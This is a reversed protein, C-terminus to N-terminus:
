PRTLIIIFIFLYIGVQRWQVYGLVGRRCPGVCSTGTYNTLLSLTDSLAALHSQWKILNKISNFSDKRRAISDSAEVLM